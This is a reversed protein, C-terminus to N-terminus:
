GKEVNKIERWLKLRKRESNIKRDRLGERNFKRKGLRERM